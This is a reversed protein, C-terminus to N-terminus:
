LTPAVTPRWRSTIHDVSSGGGGSAGSLSLGSGKGPALFSQLTAGNAEARTRAVLQMCEQASRAQGVYEDGGGTGDGQAFTCPPPPPARGLRGPVVVPLPLFPFYHRLPHSYLPLIPLYLSLIPYFCPSFVIIYTQQDTLGHGMSNSVPVAPECEDM